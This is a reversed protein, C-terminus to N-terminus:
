GKEKESGTEKEKRKRGGERRREKRGKRNRQKRMILRPHGLALFVRKSVAGHKAKIHPVEGLLCRSKQNLWSSM